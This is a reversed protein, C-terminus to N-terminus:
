SFGICETSKGASRFRFSVLLGNPLYAPAENRVARAAKPNAFLFYILCFIFVVDAFIDTCQHHRCHKKQMHGNVLSSILMCQLPLWVTKFFLCNKFM